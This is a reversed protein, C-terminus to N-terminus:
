TEEKTTNGQDETVVALFRRPFFQCYDNERKAGFMGVCRKEHRCTGCTQGAPLNMCTAEVCGCGYKKDVCCGHISM